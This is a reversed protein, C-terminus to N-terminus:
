LNTNLLGGVAEVAFTAPVILNLQRDRPAFRTDISNEVFFFSFFFVFVSANDTGHISYTRGERCSIEFEEVLDISRGSNNSKSPPSFFINM